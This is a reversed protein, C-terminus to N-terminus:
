CLLYGIRFMVSDSTSIDSRMAQRSPFETASVQSTTEYHWNATSESRLNYTLASPIQFKWFNLPNNKVASLLETRAHSSGHSGADVLTVKHGHELLRHTLVSGASGAGLILYHKQVADSAAAAASLKRITATPLCTVAKKVLHLM